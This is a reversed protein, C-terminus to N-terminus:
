QLWARPGSRVVSPLQRDKGKEKPVRGQEGHSAAGKEVFHREVGGCGKSMKQFLEEHRRTRSTPTKPTM